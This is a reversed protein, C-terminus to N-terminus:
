RLVLVLLVLRLLHAEVQGVENIELLQSPFDPCTNKTFIHLEAGVEEGDLAEGLLVDALLFHLLSDDLLLM